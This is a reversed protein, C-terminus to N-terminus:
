PHSTTQTQRDLISDVLKQSETAVISQAKSNYHPDNPAVALDVTKLGDFASLVDIYPVQEDRALKALKEHIKKFPYTNDGVDHLVPLLVVGLTTHKQHCDQVFGDFASKFNKWTASNEEFLKEYYNTQSTGESLASLAAFRCWLVSALESHELLWNSHTNAYAPEPDNLFVYLLVLDPNYKWGDANLLAREQVTNYNGVGMNLVEFSQSRHEKSLLSELVKPSSENLEVGWGCVMCDGVSLIRYTNPSKEYSYERDRLGKSNISVDVGFLTAHANPRHWHGVGEITSPSKVQKAYKWMEINLDNVKTFYWRVFLEGLGLTPICVLLFSIILFVFKKLM